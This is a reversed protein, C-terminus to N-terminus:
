QKKFYYQMRHKEITRKIQFLLVLLFTLLVFAALLYSGMAATLASVEFLRPLVWLTGFAGLVMTVCIFARLKTFPICSKIVSLMSMLILLLYM